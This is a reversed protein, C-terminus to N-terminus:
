KRLGQKENKGNPSGQHMLAGSDDSSV